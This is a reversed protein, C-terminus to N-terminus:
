AAPPPQDAEYHLKVNVEVGKAALGQVAAFSTAAADPTSAFRGGGFHFDPGSSAESPTDPAAAPEEAAVAETDAETEAATGTNMYTSGFGADLIEGRRVASHLTRSVDSQTGKVYSADDRVREISM